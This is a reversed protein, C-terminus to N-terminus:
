LDVLWFLLHMGSSTVIFNRAHADTPNIIISCLIHASFSELDLDNLSNARNNLFEELTIGEVASSAQAV